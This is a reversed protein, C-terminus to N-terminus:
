LSSPTRKKKKQPTDVTLIQSPSSSGPLMIKFTEIKTNEPNVEELVGLMAQAEDFRKLECALTIAADLYKPNRPSIDLAHQYEALADGKSGEREHMTGLLFRRDADQPELKVYYVLSEIAEKWERKAAYVRSLVEYAPAFKSEASILEVLREEAVQFREERLAREADALLSQLNEPSIHEKRTHERHYSRELAIFKGAFKRFMRQLVRWPVLVLRAGKGAHYVVARQMRDEMIRDRLKKERVTRSSDLDLMRLTTYKKSFFYICIGGGVGVCGIGAFIWLSM